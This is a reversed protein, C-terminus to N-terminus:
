SLTFAFRSVACCLTYTRAIECLCGRRNSTCTIWCSAPSGPMLAFALSSHHALVVSAEGVRIASFLNFEIITLQRAIELDSIEWINLM